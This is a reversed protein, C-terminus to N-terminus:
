KTFTLKGMRDLAHFDGRMPPSWGSYETVQANKDIRFFNASFTDGAVLVTGDSKPVSSLPIAMEVSWGTDSDSSDNVMGNPTVAIQVNSDWQVDGERYTRYSSDFIIGNPSVQIEYYTESEDPRIFVDLADAKWLEEDKQTFPSLLETDTATMGIFLTKENWLIRVDTPSKVMGGNLSNKFRDLRKASEWVLDDLKGDIRPATTTYPIDSSSSIRSMMPNPADTTITVVPGKIRNEADVPGSIISMRNPGYWLGTRLEMVPSTWNQPIIIREMDQIIEGPNWMQPKYTSRMPGQSNASQVLNGDNDIMHTFFEWTGSIKSLSKWYWTITIAQGPAFTDSNISYGLLIAKKELNADVRQINPPLQKIVFRSGDVSAPAATKKDLVIEKKESEGDGPQGCAAVTLGCFLVWMAISKKM